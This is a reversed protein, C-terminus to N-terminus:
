QRKPDVATANDVSVPHNAARTGLVVASLIIIGGCVTRWEPVEGLLLWALVVGHVAELSAVLMEKPRVRKPDVYNEKVYHIVKTLVRLASLEHPAKADKEDLRPAANADTSMTLTLPARDNGSFAWAALLAAIVAVRRLTHM